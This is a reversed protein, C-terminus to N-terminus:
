VHFWSKTMLTQLVHLKLSPFQKSVKQTEGSQAAKWNRTFTTVFLCYGGLYQGWSIERESLKTNTTSTIDRPRTLQDVDDLRKATFLMHDAVKTALFTAKLFDHFIMQLRSYYRVLISQIVNRLMAKKSFTVTFSKWWKWKMMCEGGWVTHCLNMEFAKVM